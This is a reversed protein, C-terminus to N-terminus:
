NSSNLKLERRESQGSKLKLNATRLGIRLRICAETNNPWGLINRRAQLNGLASARPARQLMFIVYILLSCALIIEHSFRSHVLIKRSAIWAYFVGYLLESMDLNKKKNVLFPICFDVTPACGIPRIDLEKLQQTWHRRQRWYVSKFRM